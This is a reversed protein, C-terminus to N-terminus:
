TPQRYRSDQGHDKPAHTKLKIDAKTLLTLMNVTHSFDVEVGGPPPSADHLIIGGPGSPVQFITSNTKLINHILLQYKRWILCKVIICPWKM